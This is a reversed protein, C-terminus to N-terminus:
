TFSLLMNTEGIALPTGIACFLGQVISTIPM